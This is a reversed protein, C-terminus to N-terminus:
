QSKLESVYYGQRTKVTVAERAVRVEVKHYASGSQKVDSPIYALTYEHRAQETIQSYLREIARTDSAYYVDGGTDNAYDALRAFKRKILSNGVALSYVSINDRLLAEVTEPYTFKNFQPGNVGDSIVLIMKRRTSGRDRLLDASSYIADDLAKTPRAGPNVPAQKKSEGVGESHTTPPTVFPVPGATSPGSHRQADTLAAWLQDLDSTFAAGPYFSLDFRCVMVEDNASIGGTIARLSPAVRAADKSKLDDDVLIILSLPFAEATFVSITQEVNEDFIRFDQQQLDPVLDGFHNKVTVPLIVLNSNVNIKARADSQSSPSTPLKASLQRSAALVAFAAFSVLTLLAALRTRFM